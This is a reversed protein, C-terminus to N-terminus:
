GTKDQNTWFLAFQESLISLGDETLIDLGDQTAFNISSKAQNSWVVEAEPEPIPPPTEPINEELQPFLLLLM